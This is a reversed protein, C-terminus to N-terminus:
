AAEEASDGNKQRLMVSPKNDMEDVKVTLFRIVDESIRLQREMEALAPFPSELGLMVYHGKNSKNIPYALNRLGWSENKFIKGGGDVIIQTMTSALKTVDNPSMDSRVIFTCEYFSMDMEM